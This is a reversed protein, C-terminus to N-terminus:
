NELNKAELMAAAQHYAIEAIQSSGLPNYEPNALLGQMAAIAIHDRLTLNSVNEKKALALDAQVDELKDEAQALYWELEDIREQLDTPNM